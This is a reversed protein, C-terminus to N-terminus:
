CVNMFIIGQKIDSLLYFLISYGIMVAILEVHFLPVAPLAASTLVTLASPPRAACIAPVLMLIDVVNSDM